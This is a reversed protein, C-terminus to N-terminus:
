ALFNAIMQACVQTTNLLGIYRGSDDRSTLEGVLSYPVIYNAASVLGTLGFVIESPWPQVIAPILPLLFCVAGLGM